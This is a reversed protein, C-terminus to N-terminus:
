RPFSRRILTSLPKVHQQSSVDWSGEEGEGRCRDAWSGAGSRHIVKGVAPQVRFYAAKRRLQKKKERKKAASTYILTASSWQSFWVKTENVMGAGVKLVLPHCALPMLPAWIFLWIRQFCLADAHAFERGASSSFVWIKNRTSERQRESLAHEHTQTLLEHELDEFFGILINRWKSRM